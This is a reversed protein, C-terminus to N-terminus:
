VHKLWKAAKEHEAFFRFQEGRNAETAMEKFKESKITTLDIVFATKIQYNVLKQLIDGALKTSLDFFEPALNEQLLLLKRTQTPYMKEFLLLVDAESSLILSNPPQYFVNM